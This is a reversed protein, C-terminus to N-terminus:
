AAAGGAQEARRYTTAHTIQGPRRALGRLIPSPRQKVLYALVEYVGSSPLGTALMLQAVTLGEAAPVNAPPLASLVVPTRELVRTLTGCPAYAGSRPRGTSAVARSVTAAARLAAIQELLGWGAARHCAAAALVAERGTIHRTGACTHLIVTTM